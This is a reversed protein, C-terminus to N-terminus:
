EIAQRLDAGRNEIEPAVAFLVTYSLVGRGHLLL